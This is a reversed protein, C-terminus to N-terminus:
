DASAFWGSRLPRAAKRFEAIVSEEEDKKRRINTKVVRRWAGTNQFSKEERCLEVVVM